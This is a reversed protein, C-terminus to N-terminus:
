WKNSYKPHVGPPLLISQTGREEEAVVFVNPNAPDKGVLLTVVGMFGPEIRVMPTTEIGYAFTNLYHRGPLLPEPLIGKEDENEGLVRGPPLPKGYKRTLIGVQMEPIVTAAMVDTWAYTYPNVFHYGEKLVDLRVGKWEPSTALLQENRLDTGTKQILVVFHGQPVSVWGQFAFCGAVLLMLMVALAAVGFGTLRLKIPNRRGLIDSM